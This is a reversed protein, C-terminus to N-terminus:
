IGPPRIEPSYNRQIIIGNAENYANRDNRWALITQDEAFALKDEPKTWVTYVRIANEDGTDEWNVTMRGTSFFHEQLYAEHAAAREPNADRWWQVSNNPRTFILISSPM